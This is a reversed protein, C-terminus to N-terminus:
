RPMRSSVGRLRMVTGDVPGHATTYYGRRTSLETFGKRRYLSLAPSNDGRVELLVDDCGRRAAEDLLADLLASGVGTGQHSPVVAITQVDGDGGVALLGAYGAIEGDREAVLYHRTRGQALESWFTEASWPDDPFVAREWPVLLEIDWWRMPRLVVTTM